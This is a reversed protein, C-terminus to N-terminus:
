IGRFEEWSRIIQRKWMEHQRRKINRMVIKKWQKQELRNVIPTLVRKDILDLTRAIGALMLVAAIMALGFYLM